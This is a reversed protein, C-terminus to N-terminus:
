DRMFLLHVAIRDGFVPPSPIWNPPRAAQRAPMRFSAPPLGYFDFARPSLELKVHFLSRSTERASQTSVKNAGGDPVLASSAM